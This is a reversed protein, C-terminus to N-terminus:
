TSILNFDFRIMSNKRLSLFNVSEVQFHTVMPFYILLVVFTLTSWLIHDGKWCPYIEDPPSSLMSLYPQTVGPGWYVCSVIKMLTNVVPFFLFTAMPALILYSPTYLLKVTRSRSLYDHLVKGRIRLLLPFMYLCWIFTIGLVVGFIVKYVLDRTEFNSDGPVNFVSYATALHLTKGWKSKVSASLASLQIFELPISIITLFNVLTRRVTVPAPYAQIPTPSFKWFIVTVIIVPITLFTLTLTLTIYGLKSASRSCDEEFWGQFCECVGQINCTGHGSCGPHQCPTSDYFYYKDTTVGYIDFNEDNGIYVSYNGGYGQAIHNELSCTVHNQDVYTTQQVTGNEGFKCYKTQDPCLVPGMVDTSIRRNYAGSTSSLGGVFPGCHPMNWVIEQFSSNSKGTGLIGVSSPTYIGQFKDTQQLFNSAITDNTLPATNTTNCDMDFCRMYYGAGSQLIYTIIPFGTPSIGANLFQMSGMPWMKVTSENCLWDQCVIYNIVNKVPPQDRSVAWVLIPFKTVPNLFISKAMGGNPLDTQCNVTSQFSSTLTDFEAPNQIVQLSLTQSLCYFVYLSGNQHADVPAFTADAYNSSFQSTANLYACDLNPCYLSKSDGENSTAVFYPTNSKPSFFGPIEQLPLDFQLGPISFTNWGSTLTQSCTTDRCRITNFRPSILQSGDQILVLFTDDPYMIISATYLYTDFLSYISTVTPNTCSADSCVVLYAVGNPGSYSPTNVETDNIYVFYIRNKSDSVFPVDHTSYRTIPGVFSAGSFQNCKDCLSGAVTGAIMISGILMLFFHSFAAAM